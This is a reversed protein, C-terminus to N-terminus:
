AAQAYPGASRPAPTHQPDLYVQGLPSHRLRRIELDAIRAATNAIPQHHATARQIATAVADVAETTDGIVFYHWTVDTKKTTRLRLGVLWRDQPASFGVSHHRHTTHM